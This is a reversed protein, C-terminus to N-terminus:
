RERLIDDGLISVFIAVITLAVSPLIAIWAATSLYLRGDAIMSGWSPTRPDVGFGLFALAAESVVAHAFEIAGLAAIDGRINPLVYGVALNRSRAGMAIAGEFYAMHKVRLTAARAIRAFQPWLTAAIAVVVSSTGTGLVVSLSLALVIAPISLQVNIIWGLIADFRRELLGAMVGLSVGVLLGAVVSLVAVTVSTRAGFVLRAWIDRGLHDTGLWHAGDVLPPLLRGAPDIANPSVGTVTGATVALLVFLGLVGLSVLRMATGGLMRGRKRSRRLVRLGNAISMSQVSPTSM